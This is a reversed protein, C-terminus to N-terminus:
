KKTEEKSISLGVKVCLLFVTLGFIITFLLGVDLKPGGPEFAKFICSAASLKSLDFWVKAYEDRQFKTLKTLDPLLIYGKKM